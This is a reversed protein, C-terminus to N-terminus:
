ETATPKSAAVNCKPTKSYIYISFVEQTEERDCLMMLRFIKLTTTFPNTASWFHWYHM